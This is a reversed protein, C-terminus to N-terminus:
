VGGRWAEGYVEVVQERDARVLNDGMCFDRVALEALDGFQILEVVSDYRRIEEAGFSDPLKRGTLIGCILGPEPYSVSKHKIVINNLDMYPQSLALNSRFAQENGDLYAGLIDAEGQQVM